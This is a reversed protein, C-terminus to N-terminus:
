GTRIGQMAEHLVAAGRRIETMIPLKYPCKQECQGCEICNELSQGAGAIWHESLRHVPFRKVLTEMTMLSIIEVGHPCPSCYGCRRCFRTGLETRLAGILRKDEASLPLGEKWLALVEDVEEMHEFGPDAAVAPTSLVFRICAPASGLAGGGFPKMAIFGINRRRCAELIETGEERVIFNFPYQLVEIEPHEIIALAAERTHASAGIHRIKGRERYGRLTDMAGAELMERWTQADPVNHFQYLDVYSTQLRRLSLEVQETLAAPGRGPGKTFLLVEERPYKRIAKGIREESTGYANATDIWNLGGDLARRLVRIARAESLRQIPISGFGIRSVRLGSKGLTITMNYSM